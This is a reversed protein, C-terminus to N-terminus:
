IEDKRGKKFISTTNGKQWDSPIEGSLGSKFFFFFFFFIKKKTKCYITEYSVGIGDRGTWQSEDIQLIQFSHIMQIIPGSDHTNTQKYIEFLFVSIKIM